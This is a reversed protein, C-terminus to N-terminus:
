AIATITVNPLFNAGSNNDNYGTGDWYYPAGAKIRHSTGYDRAVVRLVKSDTWETFSGTNADNSSADCNIVWKFNILTHIQSNASVTYKSYTVDVGDIQFKFHGISHVADRTAISFCCEYIVKKAVAPPTYTVTSGQVNGYTTSFVQYGNNPHDEFTVTCNQGTQSSGDAVGSIIEVVGSTPYQDATFASYAFTDTATINNATISGSTTIDGSINLNDVNLKSM